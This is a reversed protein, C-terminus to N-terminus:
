GLWFMLGVSEGAGAPMVGVGGNGVPGVVAPVPGRWRTGPAAGSAAQSALGAAAPHGLLSRLLAPLPPADPSPPPFNPPTLLRRRLAFRRRPAAPDDTTPTSPIGAAAFPSPSSAAPTSPDDTREAREAGESRCIPCSNVYGVLWNDLCGAHYGHRCKLVRLRDGEAYPELCITCRDGTGGVLGATRLKVKGEGEAPEEGARPEEALMGHGDETHFLYCPLREVDTREANRPKAPGLLESLALLSEYEAQPDGGGRALSALLALLNAPNPLRAAAARPPSDAAPPQESPPPRDDPQDAPAAGQPHAATSEGEAPQVNSTDVVAASPPEADGLLNSGRHVAVHGSIVYVVFSRHPGDDPASAAAAAAAAAAADPPGLSGAAETDLLSSGPAPGDSQAAEEGSGESQAAAPLGQRGAPRIGIVLIPVVRPREEEGLQGPTGPMDDEDMAAPPVEDHPRPEPGAPPQAPAGLGLGGLSFRRRVADWFSRPRLAPPPRPPDGSDSSRRRRRTGLTPEGEGDSWPSPPSFPGAPAEAPAASPAGERASPAGGAAAAGREGRLRDRPTSSSNGM